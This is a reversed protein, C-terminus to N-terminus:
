NVIEVQKHTVVNHSADIDIYFAIRNDHRYAGRIKFIRHLLSPKSKGCAQGNYNPDVIKVSKGEYYNLLEDNLRSEENEIFEAKKLFNQLKLNCQHIQEINRKM